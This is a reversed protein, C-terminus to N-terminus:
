QVLFLAEVHDRVFSGNRLAFALADCAGRSHAIVVLRESGRSVLDLLRARVDHSNGDLTKHSSPFIFHISGPAVGRARLEKGCQPFYGPMRENAFGGVLVYRFQRARREVAGPLSLRGQAAARFWGRFEAPTPGVAAARTQLLLLAGLTIARSVRM